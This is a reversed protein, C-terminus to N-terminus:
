TALLVGLCDNLAEPWPRPQVGLVTQIKATDLRSNAPRRAPTPYEATSIRKVRPARRGHREAEAFIAEAFGAWTTDGGGAYHFVGRAREDRDLLRAAVALCASALDGAATPRGQQDAVVSIEDRTEALRLMTKVFNTRDPSYVWSTRLVAAHAHRALVADEGESKSRGYVSLPAKADDEVYPAPKEGSFVYDTSVHVLPIDLRGAAQALAAPGDRNVAFALEPESEAKDVATYAAANIIAAPKLAEVAERVRAAEALDLKERSALELTWGAPASARALALGLQGGAGTVLVRPM